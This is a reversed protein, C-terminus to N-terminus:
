PPIGVDWEYDTEGDENEPGNHDSVWENYAEETQCLKRVVQDLTWKKHHEGDIGGYRNIKNLAKIISIDTANLQQKLIKISEHLANNETTLEENTLKLVTNEAQQTAHLTARLLANEDVLDKYLNQQSHCLEEFKRKRVNNDTEIFEGSESM